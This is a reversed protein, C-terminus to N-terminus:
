PACSLQTIGSQTLELVHDIFSNSVPDKMKCLFFIRDFPSEALADSSELAASFSPTKISFFLWTDVVLLWNEAYLNYKGSSLKNSKKRIAQLVEDAKAKESEGSCWVASQGQNSIIDKGLERGSKYHDRLWNRSVSNFQPSATNKLHNKAEEWGAHTALTHEIGVRKESRQEVIQFDPSEQKIITLPYSLGLDFNLLRQLAKLEDDVQEPRDTPLKLRDSPSHLELAVM